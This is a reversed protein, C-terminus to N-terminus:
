YDSSGDGIFSTVSEGKPSQLLTAIGGSVVARSERHFYDLNPQGKGAENVALMEEAIAEQEIQRRDLSQTIM